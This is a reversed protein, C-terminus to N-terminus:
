LKNTLNDYLLDAEIEKKIIKGLILTINLPLQEYEMIKTNLQNYKIKVEKYSKLFNFKNKDMYYSIILNSFMEFVITSLENIEKYSDAIKQKSEEKDDDNDRKLGIFSLLYEIIKSSGKVTTLREVFDMGALGLLLPPLLVLRINYEILWPDISLCILVSVITSIWIKTNKLFSQSTNTTFVYEHICSGIFSILTTILIEIYDTFPINSFLM